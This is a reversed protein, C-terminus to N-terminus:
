GRKEKQISKALVFGDQGNNWKEGSSDEKWLIADMEELYRIVTEKTQVSIHPYLDSEFDESGGSQIKLFRIFEDYFAQGSKLDKKVEYREWAQKLARLSDNNGVFYLPIGL